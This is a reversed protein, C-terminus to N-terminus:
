LRDLVKQADTVRGAQAYFRGLWALELSDSELSEAAELEALGENTQGKSFLALGALEHVKHYNTETVSLQRAIELARDYAKARLYIWGQGLKVVSALPDIKEAVAQEALAEQFRGRASLFRAYATHADPNAPDLELARKYVEEAKAWDWRGYFNAN